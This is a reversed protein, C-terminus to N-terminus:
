RSALVSPICGYDSCIVAYSQGNRARAEINAAVVGCCICAFGARASPLTFLDWGFAAASLNWAVILCFIVPFVRNRGIKRTMMWLAPFFLYFQEEVALSWTHGIFWSGHLAPLLDYLFLAGNLLGPWSDNILGISLLLSVAAVYIYLPPLIRFVRRIYFGKLSAAGYRQEEFTLLRCIVFGSIVFFVKVGLAGLEDFASALHRHPALTQAHQYVAAHYIVVLLVSVARWGDLEKLRGGAAGPNMALGLPSNKRSKLEESKTPLSCM